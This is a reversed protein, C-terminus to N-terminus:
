PAIIDFKNAKMSSSHKQYIYLTVM